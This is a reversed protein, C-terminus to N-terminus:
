LAMVLSSDFALKPPLPAPVFAWFRGPTRVCRGAEPSKFDEPKM